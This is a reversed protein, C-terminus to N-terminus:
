IPAQIMTGREASACSSTFQCLSVTVSYMVGTSASNLRLIAGEAREAVQPPVELSEFHPSRERFANILGGM